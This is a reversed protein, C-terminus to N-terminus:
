PQKTWIYGDPDRTYTGAGGALYATQLYDGTGSYYNPPFANTGITVGSGYFTVSILGTCGTFASNGISRVSAPITISTLGTLYQFAGSAIETVPRGSYIARIIVAGGTVTGKRVRYTNANSNNGYDIYEYALGPTGALVTVTFDDSITVGDSYRITVTISGTTSLREGNAPNSDYTTVTANFGNGSGSYSATVVLGTLDLTQDEFYIKKVSSHNLTISSLTPSTYGNMYVTVRKTGTDIGSKNISITISGPSSVNVGLAWSTGSGTLSGKTVSGSVNTIAIDQATLGWVPISFNFTITTTDAINNSGNGQVDYTIAYLSSNQVENTPGSTISGSRNSCSVRVKLTKGLDGIVVEYTDSNAGPIATDNAFWQWTPTGFGDYYWDFYAYLTDGVEPRGYRAIGWAECSIKVTGELPSLSQSHSTDNGCATLGLAIAGMLVAGVVRFMTGFISTKM